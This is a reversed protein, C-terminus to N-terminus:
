LMCYFFERYTAFISKQLYNIDNDHKILAQIHTKKAFKLPYLQLTQAGM